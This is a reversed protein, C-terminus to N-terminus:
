SYFSPLCHCLPLNYITSLPPPACLVLSYIPLISMSLWYVFSHCHVTCHALFLSFRQMFVSGTVDPISADAYTQSKLVYQIRWLSLCVIYRQWPDLRPWIGIWIIKPVITYTPSLAEPSFLTRLFPCIYLTTFSLLFMLARSLKIYKVINKNNM